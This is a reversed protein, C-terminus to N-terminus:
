PKKVDAGPEDKKESERKQRRERKREMWEYIGISGVIVAILSSVTGVCLAPNYLLSVWSDVPSAPTPIPPVPTPTSSGALRKLPIDDVISDGVIKESTRGVAQYGNATVKISYEDPYMKPSTYTGDAGTAVTPYTKDYTLSRFTVNAGVIPSGNDADVIMGSITVSEPPLATPTPGVTVTITFNRSEILTSNEYAQYGCNVIQGNQVLVAPTFVTRTAGADVEYKLNNSPDEIWAVVLIAPGNNTVVISDHDDDWKPSSFVQRAAPTPVPTTTAAPTPSMGPVATPTATDNHAAAMATGIFFLTFVATLTLAMFTKDKIFM